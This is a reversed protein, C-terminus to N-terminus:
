NSNKFGAAAWLGAGGIILVAVPVGFMWGLYRAYIEATWFRCWPPNDFVCSLDGAWLRYALWLFALVIWLRFLGRGVNMAGGKRLKGSM